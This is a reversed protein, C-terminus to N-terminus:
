RGAPIGELVQSVLRLQEGLRPAAFDVFARLKQPVLRSSPYVLSVPTPAAEFERLVPLLQGSRVAAAAQYSTAQVLGVGAIAADIASEPLTTSLRIRIPFMAEAGADACLWSKFPGLSAWAICDHNALERPHSPSGHRAVYSPAALIVMRIEGLPRAVLSSDPLASIRVALDIQEDLLNVVRDVLQLRLAVEPYQHLFDLAVPQLHQRGFGVPATISLEGKPMRHEGAVAADADRLDDLMRQCATFYPLATATLVVQRTTREFLRVGLAAELEAVRRSVTPTPLGLARAAASFGGTKAVAVFAQMSDLKDM